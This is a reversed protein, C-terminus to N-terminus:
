GAGVDPGPIVPVAIHGTIGTRTAPKPEPTTDVKTM